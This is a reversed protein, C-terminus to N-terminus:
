FCLLVFGAASTRYLTWDTLGDIVCFAMLFFYSFTGCGDSFLRSGGWAATPTQDSREAEPPVVVVVPLQLLKLHLRKESEGKVSVTEWLSCESPLLLKLKHSQADPPPAAAPCASSLFPKSRPLSGVPFASFSDVAEGSYRLFSWPLAARCSCSMNQSIHQLFFHLLKWWIVLFARNPFLYILGPHNQLRTRRYLFNFHDKFSCGSFERWGSLVMMKLEDLKICGVLSMKFLVSIM